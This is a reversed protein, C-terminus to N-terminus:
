AEARLRSSGAGADIGYRRMKLHLTKYDTGLLRAARSKNGKADALADGIARREAESFATDAITKLSAVPLSDPREVAVDPSRSSLDLHEVRIIEPGILAARRIVNRLQRVNGPWDNQLLVEIADESLRRGPPRSLEM